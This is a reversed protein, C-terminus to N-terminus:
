AHMYLTLLTFRSHREQIIGPNVAEVVYTVDVSAQM